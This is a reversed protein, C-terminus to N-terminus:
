RTREDETCPLEKLVGHEGEVDTGRYNEPGIGKGQLYMHLASKGMDLLKAAKTVDGQAVVMARDIAIWELEQLTTFREGDCLEVYVTSGRRVQRALREAKNM